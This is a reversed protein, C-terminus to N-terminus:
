RYRSMSARPYLKRRLRWNIPMPELFRRGFNRAAKKEAQRLHAIARLNKTM